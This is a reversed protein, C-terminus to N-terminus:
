NRGEHCNNALWYHHCYNELSLDQLNLITFGEASKSFKSVTDNIGANEIELKGYGVFFQDVFLVLKMLATCLVAGM